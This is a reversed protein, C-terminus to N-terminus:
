NNIEEGKAKAKRKEWRRKKQNTRKQEILANDSKEQCQLDIQREKKTAEYIEYQEPKCAQCPCGGEVDQFYDPGYFAFLEEEHAIDKLAMATYGCSDDIAIFQM